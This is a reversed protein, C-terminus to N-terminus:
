GAHNRDKLMQQIEELLETNRLMLDENQKKTEKNRKASDLVLMFSIAASCITLGEALITLDIGSNLGEVVRFVGIFFLIALVVLSFRIMEKRNLLLETKQLVYVLPKGLIKLGDVYAKIIFSLMRKESEKSMAYEIIGSILIPSTIVLLKFISVLM